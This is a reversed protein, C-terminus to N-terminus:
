LRADLSCCLLRLFFGKRRHLFLSCFGNISPALYNNIVSTLLSYVIFLVSGSMVFAHVHKAFRSVSEQIYLGQASIWNLPILKQMDTPTKTQMQHIPTKCTKNDENVKDTQEETLQQLTQQSERWLAKFPKSNNACVTPIDLKKEERRYLLLFYGHYISHVNFDGQRAFARM